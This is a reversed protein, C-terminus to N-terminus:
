RIEQETRAGAGPTRNPSKAYFQSSAETKWRPHDSGAVIGEDYNSGTLVNFPLSGEHKSTTLFPHSCRSAVIGAFDDYYLKENVKYPYSKVGEMPAINASDLTGNILHGMRQKTPVVHKAQESFFKNIANPTAPPSKGPSKPSSAM